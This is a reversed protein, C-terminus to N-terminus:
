PNYVHSRRACRREIHPEIEPFGMHRLLSSAFAFLFRSSDLLFQPLRLLSLANRGGRPGSVGFSLPRWDNFRPTDKINMAPNRKPRLSSSYEKSCWSMNWPLKGEIAHDSGSEAIM